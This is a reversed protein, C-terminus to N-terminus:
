TQIIRDCCSDMNVFVFLILYLSFKLNCLSSLTLFYIASFKGESNWL